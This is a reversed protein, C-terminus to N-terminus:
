IRLVGFLIAPPATAAPAIRRPASPIDQMVAHWPAVRLVPASADFLAVPPPSKDFSASGYLCHQECLNGQADGAPQMDPCNVAAVGGPAAGSDGAALPCAYASLALQAFVLAGLAILAALRRLTRNM